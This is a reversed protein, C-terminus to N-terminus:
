PFIVLDFGDPELSGDSLLIKRQAATSSYRKLGSETLRGFASRFISDRSRIDKLPGLPAKDTAIVINQYRGEQEFADIWERMAGFQPKMSFSTDVVVLVTDPRNSFWVHAAGWALLHLLVFVGFVKVLKM